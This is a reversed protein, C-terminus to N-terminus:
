KRKTKRPLTQASLVQKLPTFQDHQKRLAKDSLHTYRLIVRLDSHGLLMQLHRLDGGNELFRTAATHRFLHPHVNKEIGAEAAFKDLRKRFHDRTIQEGYNTLFIYDSEFDTENETILEKILRSTRHELPITRTKRNKAVAARITVTQGKYDFDSKRLNIAESIRMMGDILLVMLVYDRFDAFRRKNPVDLLRKMEEPTLVTIKEQPEPVNAVGNTPNADLLGEDVLCRFFVRLTKVRTNISSPSLGATQQAETKFRHGEYKIVETAMYRIYDRITNRTIETINRPIGRKDLYVTFYQYNERYQKLTSPARGEATKITYFTEFLDDLNTATKREGTKRENKRM